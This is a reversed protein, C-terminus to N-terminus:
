LDRDWGMMTYLKSKSGQEEEQNSSSLRYPFGKVGYPTHKEYDESRDPMNKYTEEDQREIGSKDQELHAEFANDNGRSSKKKEQKRISIDKM